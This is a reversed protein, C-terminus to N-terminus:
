RGDFMERIADPADDPVNSNYSGDLESAAEGAAEGAGEIEGSDSDSHVKNQSEKMKKELKEKDFDVDLVSTTMFSVAGSVFLLLFSVIGIDSKKPRFHPIPHRKAYFVIVCFSVLLCITLVFYFYDPLVM